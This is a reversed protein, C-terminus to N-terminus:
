SESVTFYTDM